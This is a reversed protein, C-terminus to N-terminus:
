AGDPAVQYRKLAAEDFECGLGPRDPVVAYGDEIQLPSAILDDERVWGGVLDSPLVCNRAAACAHLYSHEAIGLDVGSGHWCLSGYAAAMAANRVFQVMGGGLNFHDCAEAKIAGVIDRPSGLHLAVPVTVAARFQKYWDLNWKPMPDEYVAINPFRELTKALAIAEAPRYFRENPDLTLKFDPGAADLIAQIREVWPDDVTCKMKMGHFGRERAKAANRGADEPSQQGIWYDVAVRDRVKGGLLWHAPVGLARGVLDFLAMEFADYGAASHGPGFLAEHGRMSRAPPAGTLPLDQLSITLPDVGTLSAAAAEVGARPVGRGTEGLGYLGDDTRLRIIHKPVPPWSATGFAPSNVAGPVAPVVVTWIDVDVIKM